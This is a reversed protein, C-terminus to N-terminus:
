SIDSSAAIGEVKVPIERAARFRAVGQPYNGCTSFREGIQQIRELRFM